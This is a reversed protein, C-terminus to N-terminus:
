SSALPLINCNNRGIKALLIYFIQESICRQGSPACYRRWRGVSPSDGNLHSWNMLLFVLRQNLNVIIPLSLHPAASSVLLQGLIYLRIYICYYLNRLFWPPSWLSIFSCMNMFSHYLLHVRAPLYRIIPWPWAPTSSDLTPAAHAGYSHVWLLTLISIEDPASPDFKKIRKWVKM